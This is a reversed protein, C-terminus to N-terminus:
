KKVVYAGPIEKSPVLKTMCNECLRSNGRTAEGKCEPCMNPTALNSM